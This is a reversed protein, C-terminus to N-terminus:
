SRGLPEGRLQSTVRVEGVLEGGGYVPGTALAVLTGRDVGPEAEVGLERLL